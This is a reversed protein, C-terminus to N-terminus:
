IEEYLQVVLNAEVLVGDINGAIMSLDELSVADGDAVAQLTPAIAQWLANVSDLGWFIEESPAAIIGANSNGVQLAQLSTNFLAITGGLAARDEDPRVGLYIMCIEKAAKQTLMRQRGAINIASKLDPHVLGEGLHTEFQGVARNMEQLLPVNRAHLALLNEDSLPAQLGANVVPRMERWLVGVQYLASLIEPTREPRMGLEADGTQLAGLVHEFDGVAAAAQARAAAVEVGAQAFCLAKSMRQSLMRQRGSLNIKRKADDRESIELAQAPTEPMSTLLLAVAILTIIKPM